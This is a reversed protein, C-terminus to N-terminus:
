NPVAVHWDINGAKREGKEMKGNHVILFVHIPVLITSAIRRIDLIARCEPEDRRNTWPNM